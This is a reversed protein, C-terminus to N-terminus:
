RSNWASARVSELTGQSQTVIVTGVPELKGDKLVYQIVTSDSSIRWGIGTHGVTTLYTRGGLVLPYSDGPLLSPLTAQMATLDKERGIAPV